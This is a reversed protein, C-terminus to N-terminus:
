RLPSEPAPVAPAPEAIAEGRAAPTTLPLLSKLKLAPREVVYYSISALAVAGLTGLALNVALRVGVTSFSPDMTKTIQQIVADHYLYIGYSVLGLYVAVRTSLLRAVLGRVPSAFIGPLVLGVAVATYLLHREAFTRTNLHQLLGGNLGIQTSVAWFAVAAFIWGVASNRRVWRVARPLEERGSYWVSLVALLMGAAFQDLYGPLSLMYVPSRVSSAPEQELAWAKYAVSAAVLLVLGALEEAFARSRDDKSGLSRMALAWLPLFAYFAVEVCISWAQGIGGLLTDSSYSQAFGYFRPVGSWTFVDPVGLWITVVTLAVWYAPVIRLFRRWAYPGTRPPPQRDLRARVFPRYLLFGSIVFFVSVGM